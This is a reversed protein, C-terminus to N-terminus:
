SIISFPLVSMLFSAMVDGRASEVDKASDSFEGESWPGINWELYRLLTVFAM